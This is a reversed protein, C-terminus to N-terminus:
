VQIAPALGVQQGEYDFVTYYQRIFVDGLIWLPGAPSPVDLGMIALLCLAGDPIIYDSGHLVFSQGNIVFNLDPLTAKCDVLYEGNIFKRAGIKTALAAVETTPGTLLSTGTDIIASKVTSISAGGLQVDDLAIEWYTASKLPIWSLDGTYHNTHYGGLVLEGEISDGLYVGFMGHPVQKQLILNHFPTTVGNVSISDFAMGLIGDFKGLKYAAGLGSADTVEAFLQGNIKLGGFDLVDQSYFGSVPGSGYTIKFETGNAVYTSSKADTFEAHSGCSSDCQQSAIWLNSSGTDFIVQFLQSPTGLAIEGYYQANQYNNIIINSETLTATLPKQSSLISQVFDHNPIKKLPISMIAESSSMAAAAVGLALATKM